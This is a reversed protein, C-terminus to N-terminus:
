ALQKIEVPPRLVTLKEQTRAIREMIRLDRESLQLATDVWLTGIRM